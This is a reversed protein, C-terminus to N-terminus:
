RGILLRWRSLWWGRSLLWRRRRCAVCRRGPLRGRGRGLSITSARASPASHCVCGSSAQRSGSDRRWTFGSLLPLRCGSRSSQQRKDIKTDLCISRRGQGGGVLATQGSLRRAVRNAPSGPSASDQPEVRIPKTISFLAEIPPNNHWPRSSPVLRRCQRRRLPKHRVLMPPHPTQRGRGGTGAATM